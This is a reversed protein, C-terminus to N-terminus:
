GKVWEDIPNEGGLGVRVLRGHELEDCSVGEVGGVGRAESCISPVIGCTRVAAISIGDVVDKEVAVVEPVFAGGDDFTVFGVEEGGEGAAFHEGPEEM